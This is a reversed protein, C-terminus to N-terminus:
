RKGEEESLIVKSRPLNKVCEAKFRDYASKEATRANLGSGSWFTITIEMNGFVVSEVIQWPFNTLDEESFM